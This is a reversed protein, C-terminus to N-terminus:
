EPRHGQLRWACVSHVPNPSLLLCHALRNNFLNDSMIRSFTDFRTINDCDIYVPDHDM